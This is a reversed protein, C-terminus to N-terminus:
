EAQALDDVILDSFAKRAETEDNFGTNTNMSEDNPYELALVYYGESPKETLTMGFSDGIGWYSAIINDM